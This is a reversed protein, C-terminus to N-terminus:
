GASTVSVAITKEDGYTDTVTITYDGVTAAADAAITITDGEITATVKGNSDSSAVTCQGLSKSVKVTTNAGQAITATSAALTLINKHYTTWVVIESPLVINVDAKLRMQFFYLESNNQLPEVVLSDQDTAYDVGMWLCSEMDRTFKGLFITNEPLDNVVAIQKGKFRKKNEETDTSYKVDKSSWYEDLMDWTEGSMVFRYKSSKRVRKPASRWMAYLANQVQEGSTLATNGAIVVRGSAAENDSPETTNNIVRMIAGDFYKMPGAECSGGLAVNEDNDSIISADTGGKRGCWISQGIYSDKKDLLLHAMTAQVKPDLERFVLKCEPQFPKWYQEFDRPNFEIYIMFDQPELYRESIQYTNEGNEGAGGQTSTPTPKNDQVISGLSIHPLTKKKQIGPVIHILGEEYTENGKATYVLFDELVEGNYGNASYNITAM